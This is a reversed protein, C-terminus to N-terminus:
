CASPTLRNRVTWSDWWWDAWSLKTRGIYPVASFNRGKYAGDHNGLEFYFFQGRSRQPGEKDWIIVDPTTGPNLNCIWVINGLADIAAM